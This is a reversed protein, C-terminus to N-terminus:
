AINLNEINNWIRLTRLILAGYLLQAFEGMNCTTIRMHLLSWACLLWSRCSALIIASTPLVLLLLGSTDSCSQNSSSNSSGSFSSSILLNTQIFLPFFVTFFVSLSKRLHHLSQHVVIPSFRSMKSKGVFSSFM